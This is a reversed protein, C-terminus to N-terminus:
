RGAPAFLLLGSAVCAAFAFLAMPVLSSVVAGRDLRRLSGALRLDVIAITGFLVSLALVHCGSAIPYVWASQRLVAMPAWYELGALVSTLM